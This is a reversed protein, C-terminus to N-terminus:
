PQDQDDHHQGVNQKPSQCDLLVMVVQQMGFLLFGLVYYFAADADQFIEVGPFCGPCQGAGLGLFLGQAGDFLQTIATIVIEPDIVQLWDHEHVRHTGVKVALIQGGVLIRVTACYEVLKDFDDFVAACAEIVIAPGHGTGALRHVFDAIHLPKGGPAPHNSGTDVQIVNLGLEPGACDVVDQNAKADDDEQGNQDDANDAANQTRQVIDHVVQSVDGAAISIQGM